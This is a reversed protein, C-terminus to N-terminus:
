FPQCVDCLHTILMERTTVNLDPFIDQVNMKGLIYENWQQETCELDLIKLCLVCYMTAKVKGNVLRIETKM